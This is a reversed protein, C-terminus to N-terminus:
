PMGRRHPCGMNAAQKYRFLLNEESPYLSKSAISRAQLDTYADISTVTKGM